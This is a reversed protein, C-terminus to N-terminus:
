EEVIDPPAPPEASVKRAASLLAMSIPKDRAERKIRTLTGDFGAKAITFLAINNEAHKKLARARSLDSGRAVTEIFAQAVASLAGAALMGTMFEKGDTKNEKGFLSAYIHYSLRDKKIIEAVAHLEKIHSAYHDILEATGPFVAIARWVAIQTLILACGAPTPDKKIILGRPVIGMKSKASNEKFHEMNWPGMWHVADYVLEAKNYKSALALAVASKFHREYAQRYEDNNIYHHNTKQFEIAAMVPLLVSLAAYDKYHESMFTAHLENFEKVITTPVDETVEKGDSTTRTVSTYEYVEEDDVVEIEDVQCYPACFRDIDHGKQLAVGRSFILARLIAVDSAYPHRAASLAKYNHAAIYFVETRDLVRNLGVEEAKLDRALNSLSRPLQFLKRGTLPEDPTLSPRYSEIGNLEDIRSFLAKIDATSM